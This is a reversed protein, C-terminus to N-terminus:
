YFPSWINLRTYDLVTQLFKTTFGSIPDSVPHEGYMLLFRPLGNEIDASRFSIHMPINVHYIFWTQHGHPNSVWHLLWRSQTFVHGMKHDVSVCIYIHEKYNSFGFISVIVAGLLRSTGECICSNTRSLVRWLSLGFLILMPRKGTVYFQPNRMRRSHRFRKKRGGRTLSESMCWQVHTVRTGHHMDPDSVVPKRQRHRPFRERCERHM